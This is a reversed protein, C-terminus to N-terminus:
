SRRKFSSRPVAGNAVMADVKPITYLRKLVFDIMLVSYWHKSLRQLRPCAAITRLM